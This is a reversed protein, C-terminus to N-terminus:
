WNTGWNFCLTTRAIWWCRRVMTSPPRVVRLPLFFSLFPPLLFSPLFSSPLPLAFPYIGASFAAKGWEIKCRMGDEIAVQMDAAVTKLRGSLEREDRASKRIVIDDVYSDIGVDPHAKVLRDMDAM